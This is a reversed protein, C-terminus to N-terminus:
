KNSEIKTNLAEVLVDVVPELLVPAVDLLHELLVAVVDLLHELHVAVADLRPALLVLPVIHFIVELVRHFGHM